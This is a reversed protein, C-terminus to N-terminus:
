TVSEWQRAHKRRRGWIIVVLSINLTLYEGDTVIGNKATFYNKREDFIILIGCFPNIYSYCELSANLLEEAEFRPRRVPHESEPEHNEEAV